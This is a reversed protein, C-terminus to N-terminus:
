HPGAPTLGTQHMLARFRPDARLNDLGPEHDLYIVYDCRDQVAQNLWHFAEDIEGLGAAIGVMYVAPVYRQKSLSILEALLKRAEEKKGSVAYAHGLVMRLTLNGPYLAGARQFEAIAEPVMGKQEYARGRFYYALFFNPDLQLARRRQELAQDYQGACLFVQAAAMDM